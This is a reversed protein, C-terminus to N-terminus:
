SLLDRMHVGKKLFVMISFMLDMIVHKPECRESLKLSNGFASSRCTKIHLQIIQASCDREKISTAFRRGQTVWEQGELRLRLEYALSHDLLGTSHTHQVHIM